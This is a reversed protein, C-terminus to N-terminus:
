AFLGHTLTQLAFHIVHIAGVVACESVIWFALDGHVVQLESAKFSLFAALHSSSVLASSIIVDLTKIHFYDNSVLLIHHGDVLIRVRIGKSLFKRSLIVQGLLLDLLKSVM